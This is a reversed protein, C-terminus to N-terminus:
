FKLSIGIQGGVEGSSPTDWASATVTLSKWSVGFSGGTTGTDGQDPQWWADGFAAWDPTFKYGGQVAIATADSAPASVNSGVEGHGSKLDAVADSASSQQDSLVDQVDAM